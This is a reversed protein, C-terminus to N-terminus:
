VRGTPVEYQRYREHMRHTPPTVDIVTWLILFMMM